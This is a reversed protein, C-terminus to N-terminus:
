RDVGDMVGTAVERNKRRQLDKKRCDSELLLCPVRSSVEGPIADYLLGSVFEAIGLTYRALESQADARVPRVENISM